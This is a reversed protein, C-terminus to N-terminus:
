ATGGSPVSHASRGLAWGAIGGTLCGVGLLTVTRVPQRKLKASTGHATHKATSTVAKRAIAKKISSM